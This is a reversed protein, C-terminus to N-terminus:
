TLKNNKNNRRKYTEKEKCAQSERQKENNYAFYKLGSFIHFCCNLRCLFVVKAISIQYKRTCIYM